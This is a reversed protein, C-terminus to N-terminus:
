IKKKDNDSIWVDHVKNRQSSKLKCWESRGYSSPILTSSPKRPNPEKILVLIIERGHSNLIPPYVKEDIDTPLIHNESIDENDDIHFIEKISAM